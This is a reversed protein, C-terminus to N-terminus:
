YNWTQDYLNLALYFKSSEANTANGWKKVFMRQSALKENLALKAVGNKCTM